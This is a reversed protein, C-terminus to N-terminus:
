PRVYPSLGEAYQEHGNTADVYARALRDFETRTLTGSTELADLQECIARMKDWDHETLFL